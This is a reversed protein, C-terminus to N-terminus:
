SIRLGTPPNTPVFPVTLVVVESAASLDDQVGDVECRGTYSYSQGQAEDVQFSVETAGPASAAVEGGDRYIHTVLKALTEPPIASGDNYTTPLIWTAKRTAM